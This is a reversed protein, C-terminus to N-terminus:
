KENLKIEINQITLNTAITTLIQIPKYWEIEDNIMPDSHFKELNSGNFFKIQLTNHNFHKTLYYGKKM